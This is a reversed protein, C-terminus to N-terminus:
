FSIHAVLNPLVHRQCCVEKEKLDTNPKRYKTMNNRLLIIYILKQLIWLFKYM